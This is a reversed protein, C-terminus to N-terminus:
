KNLSGLMKLCKWAKFDKEIAPKLAYPVSRAKLFKPTVDSHLKLSVQLDKLSGTQASFVNRYKAIVEEVGFGIHCIESPFTQRIKVFPSCNTLTKGELTKGTLVKGIFAVIM